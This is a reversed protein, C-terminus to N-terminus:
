TFSCMSYNKRLEILAELQSFAEIPCLRLFYQLLCVCLVFLLFLRGNKRGFIFSTTSPGIKCFRFPLDTISVKKKLHDEQRASFSPGDLLITILISNGGRESESQLFTEM